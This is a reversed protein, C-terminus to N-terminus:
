PTTNHRNKLTTKRKEDRMEGFESSQSLLSVHFDRINSSQHKQKQMVNKKVKM